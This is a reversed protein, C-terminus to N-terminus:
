SLPGNLRVGIGVMDEDRGLLVETRVIVGPQSVHGTGEGSRVHFLYRQGVGLGYGIPAVMYLGGESLNRCEGRIPLPNETEWWDPDSLLVECRVARRPAQRSEGRAAGTAWETIFTGPRERWTDAPPDPTAFPTLKTGSWQVQSTVGM